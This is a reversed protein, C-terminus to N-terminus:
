MEVSKVFKEGRVGSTTDRKCDHGLINGLEGKTGQNCPDRHVDQGMAKEASPRIFRYV